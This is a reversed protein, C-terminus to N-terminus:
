KPATDTGIQPASKPLHRGREFAVCSDYFHMSLTSRTFDTPDLEGRSWDANLEDILGKTNEIFSGPRKLGGGYEDWYATHLDEVFYVGDTAMRPYIFRFTTAIDDMVHSGDDLVINPTGFEELVSSLFDTDSQSGIRIAIQDSEHAKCTPDIDIGVIQAHPGLYQKWLNMSGGKSVGIEMFLVPRNVFRAFHAEYAPFYHKWKWVVAGDNTLFQHWLTMSREKM